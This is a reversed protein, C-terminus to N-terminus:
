NEEEENANDLDLIDNDNPEEKPEDNNSYHVFAKSVADSFYKKARCDSSDSDEGINIKGFMAPILLALLCRRDRTFYLGFCTAVSVPVWKAAMSLPFELYKLRSEKM